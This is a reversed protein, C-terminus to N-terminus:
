YDVIKHAIGHEEISCEAHKTMPYKSSETDIVTNCIYCVYRRQASGQNYGYWRKIFHYQNRKNRERKALFFLVESAKKIM